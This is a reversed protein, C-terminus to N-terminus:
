ENWPRIHPINSESLLPEVVRYGALGCLLLNGLLGPQLFAMAPVLFDLRPVKSPVIWALLRLAQLHVGFLAVAVPAVSPVGGTRKWEDYGLMIAAPLLSAFEITYAEPALLPIAALGLVFTPREVDPRGRTVVVLGVLSFLLLGRLALSFSGAVYFPNYYGPHFGDHAFSALPMSEGWGKGVMLIEFFRLHQEVGFVVVSLSGLLVLTGLAGTLRDRDHLLHAGSTAYFLKPFSALTTLVGSILRTRRSGQQRQDPANRGREFAVAAFCFLAALAVAIQGQKLAYLVPQFGVLAWLVLVKEVRSLTVGYTRVLSLIGVWLAFLSVVNWLVYAAQFPLLSFPVFVLVIVPPYIYASVRPDDAPPLVDGLGLTETASYPTYGNGTVIVGIEEPYLHVGALFRRAALYYAAFDHGSEPTFPYSLGISQLIVDLVPYALLLCVTGVSVAFLVPRKTRLGWLSRLM